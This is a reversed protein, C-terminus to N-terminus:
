AEGEMECYYIGNDTVVADMTRDWSETPVEPVLLTSIGMTKGAFEALFRDYYGKGRGMRRGRKDFALGPVLILDIQAAPVVKAEPSPELIGYAGAQLESLSRVERATMIGDADCRPLLLRKGQDLAAALVGQLDAEPPIAAYAMVSEAAQFWPSALIERCLRVEDVQRPANRVQRRFAKKDASM